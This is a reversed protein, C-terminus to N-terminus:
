RTRPPAAKRGVSLMETLTLADRVSPLPYFSNNVEVTPFRSAFFGLWARKPQDAPYFRRRSDDYQWGSTLAM